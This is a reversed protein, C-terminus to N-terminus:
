MLLHRKSATVPLFPTWNPAALRTKEDTLAVAMAIFERNLMVSPLRTRGKPTLQECATIAVFRADHGPNPGTGHSRGRLVHGGTTRVLYPDMPGARRKVAEMGSPNTMRLDFAADVVDRDLFVPAHDPGDRLRALFGPISEHWRPLYATIEGANAAGFSSAMPAPPSTLYAALSERAYPTGPYEHRQFRVAGLVVTPHGRLRLGIVEWFHDAEEPGLFVDEPRALTAVGDRLRALHEQVHQLHPTDTRPDRSTPVPTTTDPTSM